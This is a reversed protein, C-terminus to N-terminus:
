CAARRHGFYGSCGGGEPHQVVQRNQDVEIQGQAIVAGAIPTLASWTGFGGVLVIVGLIGIILYKTSKFQMDQQM